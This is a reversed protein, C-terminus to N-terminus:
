FTTNHPLPNFLFAFLKYSSLYFCFDIECFEKIDSIRDFM